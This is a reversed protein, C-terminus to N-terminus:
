IEEKKHPLKLVQAGLGLAVIGMFMIGTNSFGGTNPLDSDDKKYEYNIALNFNHHLGQGKNDMNEFVEIELHMTEESNAEIVFEKSLKVNRSSFVEKLTGKYLIKDNNNITVHSNELFHEYREDEETIYKSNLYDYIKEDEFSMNKIKIDKNLNNSINLSSAEVNGPKWLVTEDFLINNEEVAEVTVNAREDALVTMRKTPMFAVTALLACLFISKSKKM